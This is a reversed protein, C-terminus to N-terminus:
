KLKVICYMYNLTNNARELIKLTGGAVPQFIYCCYFIQSSAVAERSLIRDIAQASNYQLLQFTNDAYYCENFRKVTVSTLARVVELQTGQTKPIAIRLMYISEPDIDISEVETEVSYNNGTVYQLVSEQNNAFLYDVNTVADEMDSIASSADAQFTELGQVKTDLAQIDDRLPSINPKM